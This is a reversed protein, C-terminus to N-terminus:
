ALWRVWAWALGFGVLFLFGFGSLAVLGRGPRMEPAIHPLRVVCFNLVAVLPATLFALVTVFDVLAKMTGMLRGIILLAMAALILMLGGAQRRGWPRGARSLLGLGGALTRAYGDLVTVTTSFMTIFAATAILWRSWQGLTAAYMDILQRSFAVGSDAFRAGTGYMVLAGFALFTFATVTTALYGLNFDLRAAALTRPVGEEKHKELVWLSSWAGVDLPTPMWGMLALLFTVGGVDWLRPRVWAPDGAPGHVVAVVVGTITLAGLVLVMAKMGADLLRFQGLLLLALCFGLLAASLVFPSATVGLLAGALGATVVTVAALTIFASGVVVLMFLVLAWRGLRAYGELLSEGAAVTYRHAFELFPYKAVLALIVAWLLLWGYDAGARTSQVLHSVGIAAGAFLIGPGVARLQERLPSKAVDSVDAEV